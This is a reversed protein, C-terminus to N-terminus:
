LKPPVWNPKQKKKFARLGIDRNPTALLPEEYRDATLQCAREVSATEWAERLGARTVITADPSMNAVRSALTLAEHLLKEPTETVINVLQLAKAEHATLRKGALAIEAALQMGCIRVIRPLGGAAAYVGISSEPLGFSATPSAVVLDCNLCIEFGGGLAYGNVAAIVPKKGGRRSLGCFGSPAFKREKPHPPNHTFEEQEILDQGSCFAKNGAGTIVAIRLEPESDFWQLLLEGEWHGRLPISNMQKERQITILLVFPVPYSLSFITSPPPPTHFKPDM